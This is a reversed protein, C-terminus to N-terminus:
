DPEMRARHAAWDLRHLSAHDVAYDAMAALPRREVTCRLLRIVGGHTLVLVRQGAHAATIGDLADAVRRGFAAMGEAGPPPHGEPDSWFRGLAEGESEALRDVPVGQWEGFDYEALRPDLRLPLGRAMALARAFDACRRLPSGVVVDWDVGATAAELQRWGPETLPDDLQGRFGHQGTDGHRLLDVTAGQASM